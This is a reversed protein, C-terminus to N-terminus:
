ISKIGCFDFFFSIVSISTTELDKKQKKSKQEVCVCVSERWMKRIICCMAGHFLLKRMDKLPLAKGCKNLM